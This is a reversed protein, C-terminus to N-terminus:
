DSGTVSRERGPKDSFDDAVKRLEELLSLTGMYNRTQNRHNEDDDVTTDPNEVLYEVQRINFGSVGADFWFKM